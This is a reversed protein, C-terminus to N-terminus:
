EKDYLGVIERGKQSERIGTMVIDPTSISLVDLQINDYPDFPAEWKGGKLISQGLWHLFSHPRTVLLGLGLPGKVSEMSGKVKGVTFPGLGCLSPKFSVTSDEADTTLPSGKSDEADTTLPSGKLDKHEFTPLDADAVNYVFYFDGAKGDECIELVLAYESVKWPLRVNGLAHGEKSSFRV